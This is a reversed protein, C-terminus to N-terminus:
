AQNLHDNRRQHEAGQRHPDHPQALGRGNATHATFCHDPKDARRYEGDQDSQKDHGQEVRATAQIQGNRGARHLGSQRGASHRQFAKKGM